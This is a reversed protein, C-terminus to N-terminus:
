WNEVIKTLRSILKDIVKIDRRRGKEPKVELDHLWRLMSTMQKLRQHNATQDDRADRVAAELRAVEAQLGAIYNQGIEKAVIRLAHLSKTLDAQARDFKNHKKM